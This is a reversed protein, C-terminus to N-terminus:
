KANIYIYLIDLYHIYIYLTIISYQNVRIKLPNAPLVAIVLWNFVM